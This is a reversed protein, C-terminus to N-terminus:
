CCSDGGWGLIGVGSDEGWVDRFGWWVGWGLIWVVGWSVLGVFVYFAMWFRLNTPTDDPTIVGAIQLVVFLGFSLFVVAIIFGIWYIVIVLRRLM